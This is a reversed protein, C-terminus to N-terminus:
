LYLWSLVHVNLWYLKVLSIWQKTKNKKALFGKTFWDQYCINGDKENNTLHDATSAPTAILDGTSVSISFHKCFLVNFFHISLSSFCISCQLKEITVNFIGCLMWFTINTLFYQNFLTHSVYPVKRRKKHWISYM